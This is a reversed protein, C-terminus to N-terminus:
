LEYRSCALAYEDETPTVNHSANFKFGCDDPPVIGYKSLTTTGNMKLGGLFPGCTSHGVDPSRMSAIHETQM